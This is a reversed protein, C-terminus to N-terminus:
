LKCSAVAENEENLSVVTGWAMHWGPQVFRWLRRKVRGDPPLVKKYSPVTKSGPRGHRQNMMGGGLWLADFVKLCPAKESLMIPASLPGGVWGAM